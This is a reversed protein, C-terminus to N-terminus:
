RSIYVFFKQLLMSSCMAYSLFQMCYLIRWLTSTGQGRRPLPERHNSKQLRGGGMITVVLYKCKPHDSVPPEVKIVSHKVELFLQSKIIKITKSKTKYRDM